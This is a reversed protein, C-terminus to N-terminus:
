IIGLRNVQHKRGLPCDLDIAPQLIQRLSMVQFRSYFAESHRDELDAVVYKEGPASADIAHGARFHLETSTGDCFLAPEDGQPKVVRVLPRFIGLEEYQHLLERYVRLNRKKCYDVFKRSPMLPCMRMAVEDFILQGPNSPAQIM